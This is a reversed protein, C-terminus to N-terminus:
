QRLAQTVRGDAQEALRPRDRGSRRGCQGLADLSERLLDDDVARNFRGFGSEADAQALWQGIARRMERHIEQAVLVLPKGINVRPGVVQREGLLVEGTEVRQSALGYAAIAKGVCDRVQKGRVKGGTTCLREMSLQRRQPRIPRLVDRRENAANRARRIPQGHDVFLAATHATDVLLALNDLLDGERFQEREDFRAAADHAVQRYERRRARASVCNAEVADRADGISCGVRQADNQRTRGALLPMQREAAGHAGVHGDDSRRCLRILDPNLNEIVALAHGACGGDTFGRSDSIRRGRNQARQLLELGILQAALGVHRSNRNAPDDSHEEAFLDGGGADLVFQLGVLDRVVQDFAILDNTHRQLRATADREECQTIRDTREDRARQGDRVHHVGAALRHRSHGHRNLDGDVVLATHEGAADNASVAGRNRVGVHPQEIQQRAAFLWGPNPDARLAGVVLAPIRPVVDAPNRGVANNRDVGLRSLEAIQAKVHLAVALTQVDVDHKQSTARELPAGEGFVAGYQRVGRNADGAQRIVTLVTRGGIVVPAEADRADRDAVQENFRDVRGRARLEEEALVNREGPRDRCSVDRQEIDLQALDRDLGSVDQSKHIAGVARRRHAVHGDNRIVLVSALGVNRTGGDSRRRDFRGLAGNRHDVGANVPRETELLDRGARQPQVREILAREGLAARVHHYSCVFRPMQVNQESAPQARDDAPYHVGAPIRHRARADAAPERQDRGVLKTLERQGVDRDARAVNHRHAIHQAGGAAERHVDCAGAFRDAGRDHQSRHRTDGPAHRTCVARCRSRADLDVNEFM